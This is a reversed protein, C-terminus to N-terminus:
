KGYVQVDGLAAGAGTLSLRVFRAPVADFTIILPDKDVAKLDRLSAVTKWNIGDESVSVAVATPFQGLDLCVAPLLEVRGVTQADGAADSVDVTVVPAKDDSAAQWAHNNTNSGDTLYAASTKTAEWFTYVSSSVWAARNLALNEAPEAAPRRADYGAPLRLVEFDGNQMTLTVVRDEPIDMTVWEGGVLRELGTIGEAVTFTMDGGKNKLDKTLVVMQRDGSRPVYLTYIFTQRKVTQVLPFDDPVDRGSRIMPSHWVEVADADALVKGVEKIRANAAKIGDYMSSPTFDLTLIGTTFAESTGFPALYVFYKYNKMGYAVGIGANFMLDQDSSVRYVGTIEMAQIYYGTQVNYKLGTKRMGNLSSYLQENFGGTALMGYNDYSLYRTEHTGGIVAAADAIYQDWSSGVQPLLNLHATLHPNYDSIVKVVHAYRNSDDTPEDILYLGGFGARNEYKKVVDIIQEDSQKLWSGSNVPDCVSYFIGRQACLYMMYDCVQNGVADRARTEELFEIGLDKMYDLAQPIPEPNGFTSHYFTSIRFDPQSDDIVRVRAVCLNTGDYAWVQADGFGTPTIHGESDVVCVGPRTSGYTLVGNGTVGTRNDTLRLAAGATDAYIWMDSIEAVLNHRADIDAIVEVEGLSWHYQGGTGNMHLPRIRVFVAQEGGLEVEFGTEDVGGIDEFRAIEQWSKFDSSVEVVFSSPFYAEDGKKPYLVVSRLAYTDTLDIFAYADADPSAFNGSTFGNTMNGDNLQLNAAGKCSSTMAFGQVAVNAQGLVTDRVEPLPVTVEETEPETPTETPTEDPADTGTDAPEATGSPVAETGTDAPDDHGGCAILALCIVALLAATLLVFTRKM